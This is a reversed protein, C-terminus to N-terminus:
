GRRRYLAIAKRATTSLAVNELQNCAIWACNVVNKCPECMRRGARCFFVEITYEHNTISHRFTGLREATKPRRRFHEPEPLEWFGALKSSHSARQWLLLTEAREVVFVQRQLRITEIKRLKVPLERQRGTRHADCLDQVPCLLCQPSRPSCHTAGLEMMAQNFRGPASPDILESAIAQLQKRVAASGIDGTEGTVRSLVRLVNGDVAARPLHFAISAIAAATYDGIGPLARIEEFTSPFAGNMARAARQLNRVRTYYGLGAWIKLLDEEPAAALTEIEPYRKLFREYYPVVAAVRTQQLMIESIWVAYPDSTNRWPLDRHSRDYWELLRRSFGALVPRSREVEAATRVISSLMQWAASWAAEVESTFAEALGRSLTSLLAQEFLPYHDQRIGYATQRRGIDELLPILQEPRNLRGVIIALTGALPQGETLDEPFLPRLAPDLAFLREYFVTAALAVMSKVQEFSSQILEIHRPTM